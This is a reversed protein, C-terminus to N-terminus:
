SSYTNPELAGRLINDTIRAVIVVYDTRNDLRLVTLVKLM